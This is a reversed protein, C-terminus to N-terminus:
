RKGTFDWHDADDITKVHQGWQGSYVSVVGDNDGEVKQILQGSMGLLSSWYSPTSKATYSYYAVSPDDPTKPNFHQTCYETTLNNYAPTDFWQCLVPPVWPHSQNSPSSRQNPSPVTTNTNNNKTPSSAGSGRRRLFGNSLDGMMCSSTAALPTDTTSSSGDSSDYQRGLGVNDRFFDM